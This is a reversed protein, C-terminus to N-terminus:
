ANSNEFVTLLIKLIDLVLLAPFIKMSRDNIKVYVSTNTFEQTIIFFSM